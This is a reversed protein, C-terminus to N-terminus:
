LAKLFQLLHFVKVFVNSIVVCLLDLYWWVKLSFIM